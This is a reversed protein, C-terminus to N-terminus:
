CCCFTTACRWVLTPPARHSEGRDPSLTSVALDVEKAPPGGRSSYGDLLNVRQFGSSFSFSVILVNMSLM